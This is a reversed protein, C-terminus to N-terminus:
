QSRTVGTAELLREIAARRDPKEPELFELGILYSQGDGASMRLVHVVRGVVTVVDSASEIAFELHIVDELAHFSPGHIM